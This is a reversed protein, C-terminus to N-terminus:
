HHHCVFLSVILKIVPEVQKSLSHRCTIPKVAGRRGSKGIAFEIQGGDAEAALVIAGLLEILGANEVM